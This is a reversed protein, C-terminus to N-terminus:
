TGLSNKYMVQIDAPELVRGKLILMGWYWGRSGPLKLVGRPPHPHSVLGVLIEDSGQVEESGICSLIALQVSYCIFAIQWGYYSHGCTTVVTRDKCCDSHDTCPRKNERDKRGKM